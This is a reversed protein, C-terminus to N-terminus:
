FVALLSPVIARSHLDSINTFFTHRGMETRLTGAKPEDGHILIPSSRLKDMLAAQNSHGCRIM